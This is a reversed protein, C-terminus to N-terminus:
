GLTRGASALRIGEVFRVIGGETLFQYEIQNVPHVEIEVVWDRALMAIRKLRSEPEVPVLSFFYDPLRHRRALLNDVCRRYFRNWVSKEGVEFSFNRRVVTGHPLLGQVLVNACLHMHHHGDLRSPAMGYLRHFEDCQAKVVYEFESTLGPHFIAQAFRHRLLYLGIKEQSERLRSSCKKDSFPTTLNLHLGVDLAYEQAIVAARDSDEMFVMASVSSVSACRVCSITRDTTDRDRGWDDANVILSGFAPTLIGTM